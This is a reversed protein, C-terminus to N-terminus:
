SLPTSKANRYGCLANSQANRNTYRFDSIWLPSIPFDFAHFCICLPILSPFRNRLHEDVQNQSGQGDKHGHAHLFFLINNERSIFLYEGSSLKSIYTKKETNEEEQKSQGCAANCDAVIIPLICGYEAQNRLITIHGRFETKVCKNPNAMKDKSFLIINDNECNCNRDEEM